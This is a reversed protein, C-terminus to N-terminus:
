KEETLQLFLQELGQVDGSLNKLEDLTGCAVLKGKHLIGIRDAIEEALSLTHTSLLVTGHNATHKKLLAKFIQASAPDLGVMPEDIVLMPPDTLLMATIILKQKMGHSYDEIMEDRADMLGFLSLLSESKEKMKDKEVGYLDSIFEIFERGTLKGYLYPSDPIYRLLKKAEAYSTMVDFEGIRVTGQTPKLLGAIVKFTTTKGAANPGLLVFLEGRKIELSLGNVAVKDGYKKVLDKIEIM